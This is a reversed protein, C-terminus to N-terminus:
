KMKFAKMDKKYLKELVSKYIMILYADVFCYKNALFELLKYIFCIGMLLLAACTIIHDLQLAILFIDALIYFVFIGSFGRGVRLSHKLRESLIAIKEKIYEENEQKLQEYMDVFIKKDELKTKSITSKEVEEECMKVYMVYKSKGFQKKLCKRFINM